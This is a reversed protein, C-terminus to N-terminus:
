VARNLSRALERAAELAVNEGDLIKRPRTATRGDPFFGAARIRRIMPRTLDAAFMIVVQGAEADDRIFAEGVQEESTPVAALTIAHDLAARTRAIRAELKLSGGFQRAAELIALRQRLQPVAEPKAARISRLPIDLVHRFDDPLREPIESLVAVGNLALALDTEADSLFDCVSM